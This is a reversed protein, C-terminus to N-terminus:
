KIDQYPVAERLKDSQASRAAAWEAASL